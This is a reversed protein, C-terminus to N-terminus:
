YANVLHHRQHMIIIIIIRSHQSASVCRMVVNRTMPPYIRDMLIYQSLTGAESEALTRRLDEGFLNNGGGERQPKLVFASPSALARHLEWSSPKRGV